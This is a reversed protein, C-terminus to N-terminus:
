SSLVHQGRQPGIVPRSRGAGGASLARGRRDAARLPIREGAATNYCALEARKGVKPLPLRPPLTDSTPAPDQDRNHVWTATVPLTRINTTGPYM